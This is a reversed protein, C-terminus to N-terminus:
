RTKCGQVRRAGHERDLAHDTNVFSIGLALNNQLQGIGKLSNDALIQQRGGISSLADKSVFKNSALLAM